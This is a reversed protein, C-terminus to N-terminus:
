QGWNNGPDFYSNLEEPTTKKWVILTHQNNAITMDMKCALLEGNRNTVAILRAKYGIPSNDFDRTGTTQTDYFVNDVVSNIDKYVLYVHAYTISDKPDITYTISTKQELRAFRDCNIWGLQKINTIDYLNKNLKETM